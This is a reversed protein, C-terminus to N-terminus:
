IFFKDVKNVVHPLAFVVVRDYPEITSNGTVIYSESKRIYGGIVAGKPFDLDRIKGHTIRSEPNVNFEIVEADSGHLYKVLRVKDSMTFRFIRGATMLKKNIVSDIGMKEVLKIYDNNEVKAIVKPVGMRKAAVCSLINTESSSTVAVFADYGKIEEEILLDSNRGDGSVVMTRDLTESLERSRDANLEIIKVHDVLNELKRAVMEGVRGGGLIMLRNVELVDHGSYNMAETAGKRTAIIFILDNLRFTTNIEPIITEGDRAIAVLRFQIEGESLFDSIPKDLVPSSEDLRYVILQLRGHAFDTYETTGSQKLLDCIELAAIREPYFMLDIGLETFLLKNEARMYEENNVRAIVKKSGIKKALIASILNVDQEEAPSVAIFLDARDVGAEHLVSISTPKGLITIVDAGEEVNNLRSEDCDIITIDHYETSLMKALHSGVDGAGAIVIKM